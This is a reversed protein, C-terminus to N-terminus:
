KGRKSSEQENANRKKEDMIKRKNKGIKKKKKTDQSM